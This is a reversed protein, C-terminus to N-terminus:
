KYKFILGKYPKGTRCAQTINPYKLEKGRKSRFLNIYEQLNIDLIVDAISLYEGLLLDDKYVLVAKRFQKFAEKRKIDGEKSLKRNKPYNPNKYGKKGKNWITTNIRYNVLLKYKEPVENITILGEKCKKYYESAKNITKTFTKSRKLITEKSLEKPPCSALKNINYGKTKFPKCIDICRQEWLFNDPTVMIIRFEFFNKYKNWSRQLYNNEHNGRNLANEHEKLRKIFSKSTSGIYVKNKRKNYLAYVGKEKLKDLDKTRINM